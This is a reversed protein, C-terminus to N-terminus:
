QHSSIGQRRECLLTSASQLLNLKKYSASAHVKTGDLKRLDFYGSTRRGFIFCEENGYLVKDFLQFGYVYRPAKNSRRIGYKFNAKHLRRNQARVFKYYFHSDLPLALSNGSICRADTIHCKALASMIRINKTIYGYTLKVDSYIEKLKKYVAWRMIGMFAADRYSKGRRLNLELKGAHYDAHCQKCLTILNNPADGGTKRSEIHHVQLINNKCGKRGQCRHSDRWLVYERVNWFGLQDGRQYGQGQIDPNRIKQIDFQAVEIILKSVPLMNYITGILKIHADVKNKVSPALWGKPRRRNNFRAPRYRTKRHRRGRRLARRESLLGLIDNRLEAEAEFLVRNPSTASIGVIKSGADVGLTIPQKYGSSGHLLRITFPTRKVVVAKGKKLLLRAKRPRCPMLPEGHKNIIYVLM